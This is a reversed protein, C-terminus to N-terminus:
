KVWNKFRFTANKYSDDLHIYTKMQKDKIWDNLVTEKKKNKLMNKFIAWDDALNAKHSPTESKIKVIKYTTKARTIAEFPASIEGVKLKNVQKSIASPLLDKRFKSSATKPNVLLGGNNRTNKDSSFYFAAEDFTMKKSKILDTISDLKAIAAKKEKEAIVPKLLIQRVNIHNGKRDILQMIHFGYETEVIKSVKNSKLNFAVNAYEPILEARAMYGLEGGKPASPGESYLVALTGFSEGKIIRDRLKRLKTRIRDREDASIKPDRVIQQVQIEGPVTPLSDKKLTRYFERVEAPTVHIDKTIKAIMKDKIGEARTDERFDNKMQEITKNFYKELKEKSGIRQIYIEMKRNLTKEVEQDTVFVSDIQAQALMLKQILLDELIESKLDKSKEAYGQAKMALFRNEVDSKLVVENGVVAIIKDAINNQAIAQTSGLLLVILVKYIRNLRIQM